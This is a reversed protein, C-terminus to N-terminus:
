EQPLFEEPVPDNLGCVTFGADALDEFFGPYSKAVVAPDKIVIGPLVLSAAAFAMAIRHDGHPDIEPMRMIPRREGEWAFTDNGVEAVIGLQALGEALAELRDCEKHRLNGVGSLVYPLGTLAGTVAIAPVLDPWDAMDMDLRSYIDPTASLEAGEDTFETVVGFREGINKLVSDGQLSEPKMGPLTVWGASVAAISYWYSASSWDPEAEGEVNKIAGHPIVATYAEIYADIGRAELMSLTMKLYPMSPIQGGLNIRLGKGMTPAIMALASAFQSSSSADLTVEGGDLRHGRIHLPAFGDNGVYDIEAGLSRLADVLPRVPRRCLRDSGTLTVDAGDKAAFYATLFRLATGSDEVNVTANDASPGALADRLVKIDTCVPLRDAAVHSGSLAALVLARAAISKSLPLRQPTAELMELPPYIRIASETM